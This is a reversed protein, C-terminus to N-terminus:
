WSGIKAHTQAAALSAESQRLAEEAQKRETIDRVIGLVLDAGTQVALLEGFFLSGDKHRFQRETRLRKGNLIRRFARKQEAKEHEAVVADAPLGIFEGPTYGFM